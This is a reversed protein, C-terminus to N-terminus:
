EEVQPTELWAKGPLDFRMGQRINLSNEPSTLRALLWFAVEAATGPGTSTIINGDIVVPKDVFNAGTDTLQQKRMGGVKHYVTANRGVLIGAMGLSISSVCVSAIIKGAADFHRIARLYPESLSEDYFGAPGFGGPLALADYEDLNLESLLTDISVKLGFTTTIGHRLGAHTLKVPEDGILDAWGLIDTFAAVELPEVGNALIMLVRKM